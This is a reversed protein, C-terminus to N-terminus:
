MGQARGLDRQVRLSLVEWHPLSPSTAPSSPDSLGRFRIAGGFPGPNRTAQRNSPSGATNKCCDYPRTPVESQM